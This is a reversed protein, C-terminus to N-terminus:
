PHVVAVSKAAIAASPARRCVEQGDISVVLVGVSLAL